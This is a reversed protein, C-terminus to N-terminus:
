DVRALRDSLSAITTKLNERRMQMTRVSFSYAFHSPDRISALALESGISDDLNAIEREFKVIMTRLQTATRRKIDIERQRRIENQTQRKASPASVRRPFADERKDDVTEFHYRENM